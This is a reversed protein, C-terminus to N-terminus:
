HLSIKTVKDEARVDLLKIKGDYSTSLILDPETPLSLISRIYDTHINNFSRTIANTQIDFM